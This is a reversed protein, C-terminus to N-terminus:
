KEVYLAIVDKLGNEPEENPFYELGVYGKYGMSELSQFIKGYDACGSSLEHRGPCGAAHIHAVKDINAALLNSDYDNMMLQHYIDYLVKVKPHAVEEVIEFAEKASWLYYGVHDKVTNLPEIALVIGSDELASTCARLGEVISKHQESRSVNELENGTQVILMGCDLYKATDVSRKLGEKFDDRKSSDTLSISEACFIHAKLELNEKIHKIEKLDKERWAWFEFTDYGMSKITELSESYPNGDFISDICVSFKM